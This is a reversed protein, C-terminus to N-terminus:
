RFLLLVLVTFFYIDLRSCQVHFLSDHNLKCALRISNTMFVETANHTEAM